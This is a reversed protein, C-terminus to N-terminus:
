NQGRQEAGGATVVVIGSGRFLGFVSDGFLVLLGGAGGIVVTGVGGGGVQPGAQGAQQLFVDIQGSQGGPGGQTAVVGPEVGPGGGEVARGVAVGGVEHGGDPGGVAGFHPGGEIAQPAGVLVDGLEHGVRLGRGLTVLGALVGRHHLQGGVGLLEAGGDVRHVLVQGGVDDLTRDDHVGGLQDRDDVGLLGAVLRGDVGRQALGEAV